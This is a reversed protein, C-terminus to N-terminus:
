SPSSHYKTGEYTKISVAWAESFNIAPLISGNSIIQIIFLGQQM